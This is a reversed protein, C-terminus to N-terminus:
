ADLRRAILEDISGNPHYKVKFAWGAAVQVVPQADARQQSAARSATEAVAAALARELSTGGKRLTVELEALPQSLQTAITAAADVLAQETREAQREISHRMEALAHGLEGQDLDQSM